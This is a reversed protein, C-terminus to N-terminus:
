KEWFTVHMEGRLLNNDRFVFREARRGGADSRM